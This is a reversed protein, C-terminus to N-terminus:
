AIAYGQASVFAPTEDGHRERARPTLKKELDSQSHVVIEAQKDEQNVSLIVAAINNMLM